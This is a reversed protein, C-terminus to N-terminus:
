ETFNLENEFNETIEWGQKKKHSLWGPIDKRIIISYDEIVRTKKLRQAVYIFWDDESDVLFELVYKSHKKSLSYLKKCRGVYILDDEKTKKM